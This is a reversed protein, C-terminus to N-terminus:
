VPLGSRRGTRRWRSPPRDHEPHRSRSTRREGAIALDPNEVAPRNSICSEIGCHWNSSRVPQPGTSLLLPTIIVDMGAVWGASVGAVFPGAFRVSALLRRRSVLSRLLEYQLTQLTFLVFSSTTRLRPM